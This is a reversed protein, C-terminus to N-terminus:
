RLWGGARLVGELKKRPEASMECLPLRYNEKIVGMMALAAKVPIPNSEWFLAMMLDRLKDHLERAKQVKGELAAHVMEVTPGPVVNSLVSICGDGGMMVFAATTADDGSLLRFDKGTGRRILPIRDLDATAEKVGVINPLTAVRCIADPKMDLGTRGPVNYVIVPLEVAETIAAYHRYQGEPTPKNYYPTVVLACDVGADKARRTQEITARTSNSGTGAVVALKDGVKRKVQTVVQLQEESTMTAAEGTTGCPVLGDIKGALQQDVVADLAGTDLSGDKNFPTVLATLVGRLLKDAM